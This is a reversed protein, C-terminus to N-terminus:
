LGWLEIMKPRLAAVSLLNLTNSRLPCVSSYLHLLESLYAPAQSRLARYVLPYYSVAQRTSPLQVEKPEPLRKVEWGFPQSTFKLLSSALWIVTVQLLLKYSFSDSHHITISLAGCSNSAISNAVSSFPYLELQYTHKFGCWAAKVPVTAAYCLANSHLPTLVSKVRERRGAFMVLDKQRKVRNCFEIKAFKPWQNPYLRFVCVCLNTSLSNEARLEGNDTM